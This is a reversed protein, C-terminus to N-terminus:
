LIDLDTNVVRDASFDQLVARATSSDDVVLANKGFM